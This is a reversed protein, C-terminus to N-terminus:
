FSLRLRAQFTRHGGKTSLNGFPETTTNLTFNPNNIQTFKANWISIGNSPTPHNFINAAVIQIDFRKGEMFEVSKGLTMDLNWRGPGTLQMPQFNGRKGVEANQFVIEGTERLALAKLGADGQCLSRLTTSGFTQTPAAAVNWCQPDAVREYKDGYFLGNRAGPEWTVHGSKNDWLDPRILDPSSAGWLRSAAGISGPLGSTMSYIWTLQWGEVAKKLVGTSNRFIFGNAGMPLDLTGISTFSHSRHSSAIQYDAARDFPDTIGGQGLNRSWTYTAQFM